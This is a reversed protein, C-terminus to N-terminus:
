VGLAWNFQSYLNCDVTIWNLKKMNLKEKKKDFLKVFGTIHMWAM